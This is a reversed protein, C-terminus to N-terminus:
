PLKVATFDGNVTITEPQDGSALTRREMQFCFTGKIFDRGSDVIKVGAVGFSACEPVESVWDYEFLRQDLEEATGTTMEKTSLSIKQIDEQNGNSGNSLFQITLMVIPDEEDIGQGVNEQGLVIIDGIQGPNWLTVEGNEYSGTRDGNVYINYHGQTAPGPNVEDTSCASILLVTLAAFTLRKM